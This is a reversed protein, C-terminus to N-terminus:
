GKLEKKWKEEVMLEYENHALRLTFEGLRLNCVELLVGVTLWKWNCLGM